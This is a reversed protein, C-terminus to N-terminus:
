SVVVDAPQKFSPKEVGSPARFEIASMTSSTPTMAGDDGM